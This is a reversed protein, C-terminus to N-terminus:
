EYVFPGPSQNGTPTCTVNIGFIVMVLSGGGADLSDGPAVTGTLPGVIVPAGTAIAPNKTGTFVTTSSTGKRMTLTSSISDAALPLPAAIASTVTITASTGTQVTTLTAAGGGYLGCNFTVTASTPVVAAAAPAFALGAAALSGAALVAGIGLRRRASPRATKSTM